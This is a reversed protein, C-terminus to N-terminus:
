EVAFGAEPTKPGSYTIGCNASTAQGAPLQSNFCQQIPDNPHNIPDVYAMAKVFGNGSRPQSASGLAQMAWGNSSDGVVAVGNDSHGAVGYSNANNDQLQIRAGIKEVEAEM